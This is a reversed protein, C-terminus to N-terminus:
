TADEAKSEGIRMFVKDISLDVYGYDKIAKPINDIFGELYLIRQHALKLRLELIKIEENNLVERSYGLELNANTYSMEEEGEFM